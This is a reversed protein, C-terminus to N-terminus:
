KEEWVTVINILCILMTGYGVGFGWIDELRISLFVLGLNTLLLALWLAVKWNM